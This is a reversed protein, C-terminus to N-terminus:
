VRSRARLDPAPHTRPDHVRGLDSVDQAPRGFGYRALLPSALLSPRHGAAWAYVSEPTLADRRVRVLLRTAVLAAMITRSATALDSHNPSHGRQM